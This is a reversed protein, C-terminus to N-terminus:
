ESINSVEEAADKMAQEPSKSDTLSEQLALQIAESVNPWEPSPGRAQAYEMIPLFSSLHKDESWHNSENLIDQRPPFVGTEATYDTLQEPSTLWKMFDWSAEVNGGAVSTLNAGGLTSAHKEAKPIEAINFHLDPNESKIREINWTGNIMMALNGTSFQRALDDQTANIVSSSMSGNDVLENVLSLAQTAGDSGLSKYDAGASLLFPYFQFTSEESKAASMGFGQVSGQTLQSATDKLDSWTEPPNSIGAEEFMDENYYLGLTNSTVPLGYYKGDYMTSDLPGELFQETQDWNEIQETLDTLIGQEAFAANDVNDMFVMDPLNSGASGVSLQKKIEDFPVYETKVIVEDQSNNYEEVLEYFKEQQVGTFYDWVLIEDASDGENNEEESSSTSGDNSGCAGLVMFTIVASVLGLSKAFLKM